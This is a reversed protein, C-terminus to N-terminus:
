QVNLNKLEDWVTDYEVTLVGQIAVIASAQTHQCFVTYHQMETPNAASTGQLNDNALTSPGFAETASWRKTFTKYGGSALPPVLGYSASNQEAMALALTPTRTTDDEIYVGSLSSDTGTGYCHITIKSSLCTFHNYIASVTDFYMPQHGGFSTSPEYLGNCSVQITSVTGAGTTVAFPVVFRHKIRLQKPFGTTARGVGRPVRFAQTEKNTRKAGTPASRRALPQYETRSRKM